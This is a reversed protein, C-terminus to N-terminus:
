QLEVLVANAVDSGKALQLMSAKWANPDGQGAGSSTSVRDDLEITSALRAILIDASAAYIPTSTNNLVILTVASLVGVLITIALIERWWRLIALVYRRLDIEDSQDPRLDGSYVDTSQATM